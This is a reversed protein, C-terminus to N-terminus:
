EAFVPQTPLLTKEMTEVPQSPEEVAAKKAAASTAKAIKNTAKKSLSAEGFDPVAYDFSSDWWAATMELVRAHPAKDSVKGLSIEESGITQIIQWDMEFNGGYGQARAAGLYPNQRFRRLAEIFLGVEVETARMLKITNDFKTGEPIFCKPVTLMQDNVADKNDKDAERLRLEEEISKIDVCDLTQEKGIPDHRVFVDFGLQQGSFRAKFDSPIIAGPTFEPGSAGFLGRIPNQARARQQWEAKKKPILDGKKGGKVNTFYDTYNLKIEDVPVGTDKAIKEFALDVACIHRLESKVATAKIVPHEGSFVVGPTLYYGNSVAVEFARVELAPIGSKLIAYLEGNMWQGSTPCRQRSSGGPVSTTFPARSEILSAGDADRARFEINIM